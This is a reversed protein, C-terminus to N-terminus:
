LLHHPIGEYNGHNESPEDLDDDEDSEDQEGNEDEYEYDEIEPAILFEAEDMIGSFVFVVRAAQARTANGQPEFNGEPHGGMIGGGVITLVYNLAWDSILDYDTFTVEVGTQPISFGLYRAFNSLMITMQERTINANPAFIEESMGSVIGNSFGWKVYEYFWEYTPVDTFPMEHGGIFDVDDLTRSLMTLFQARTLNGDPEFLGDGMGTVVGRAALRGIYERAWHEITDDFDLMMVGVQVPISVERNGYSIYIYGTEAGRNSATFRGDQSITGINEDSRWTFLDNQSHIQVVGHRAIVNIQAEQGPEINLRSVSPQFTFNDIIHVETSGRVQGASAEVRAIGGRDGATFLGGSAVNGLNQDVSFNINAPLSVREFLANTAYTRLQVTAGPMALSKAPYVHLREAIAPATDEYVFILGNAVRRQTSESPSNKLTPSTEMGPFRAHMTTSGGGDLNFAYVSGLAHMHRALDALGLGRSQSQRGDVVYLIVSGDARVGIATRPNLGTGTAVVRGGEVITHYVGMSERINSFHGDPSTDRVSIEVESGPILFSIDAASASGAATALVLQTEGIPANSGSPNVSVVTGRITSNIRLQANEVSGTEIIVEVANGSTRTTAANHRNFLHLGRAAGFPVNFFDITRVLDREFQEGNYEFAIRGRIQYELTVWRISARDNFDFALVREPAFGSTVINGNHIVTGRPVGTAPDFIDGNIGMVARYGQSELHQIMSGLTATSRVEGTFVFPRLNSQALNAEIIHAHMMGNPDHWGIKERYTVGQFLELSSDLFATGFGAYDRAFGTFTSISLAVVLFTALVRRMMIKTKMKNTNIKNTDIPKNSM